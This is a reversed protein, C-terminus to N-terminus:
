ILPNVLQIADITTPSGMDETYLTTVGAEKCAGLIMSDWHSLSYRKALDLAHDLVGITPFVVPFVDRFEQANQEFEAATLIGMDKWRRIQNISEALAQWPLLTTSGSGAVLVQLLAAAKAQKLPERTDISYLLINTDVANM